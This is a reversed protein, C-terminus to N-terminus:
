RAATMVRSPPVGVSDTVGVSEAVSIVVPPLVQVTDAVSVGVSVIVTPAPAAQPGDSVGISETVSIVVPPLAQVTDFVNVGEPVIIIPSSVSQPGDSVSVSELANIVVPTPTARTSSPTQLDCGVSLATVGILVLGISALKVLSPLRLARPSV